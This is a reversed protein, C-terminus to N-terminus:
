LNQIAFGLGLEFTYAAFRKGPGTELIFSRLRSESRTGTLLFLPIAVV